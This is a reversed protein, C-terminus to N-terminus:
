GNTVLFTMPVNKRDVVRTWNAALKLEALNPSFGSVSSETWQFGFPHLLWTKREWLTETGGGRGESAQREVEMPVSPSGLGYGLVGRGYMVSTYKFGNTGGAIVPLGDDVIVLKGMFTPIDVTGTSDKEFDIDDNKLMQKLIVSHVGVAGISDFSDGMTFVSELFADRSYKNAATASNGAEIAIDHVMDGGNNAVNDAMIGQTIAVLRRQFQRDWYTNFRSAIRKMPDSGALEAVLDADKYGQNLYAVRGIQKAGTVKQPTAKTESDDSYNPEQTADLDKWFPIQVTDGGENAKANLLDNQEIIGASILRTKEPGNEVQYDKYIEPIIADSLQTIAM